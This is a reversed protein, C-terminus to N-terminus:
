NTSIELQNDIRQVGNTRQAISAITSKQEAGSVPGRLTVVGNVTIIKINKSTMSLSDEKIVAQRIMQTITRDAESGGQDGPTLTLSNRDRENIGTNEASKTAKSAESEHAMGRDCASSGLALTLLITFRM